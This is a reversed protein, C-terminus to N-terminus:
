ELSFDYRQSLQRNSGQKKLSNSGQDYAERIDSDFPKSAKSHKPVPGYYDYTPPPAIETHNSTLKRKDPKTIEVKDEDDSLENVIPVPEQPKVFNKYKMTSNEKKATSFYLGKAENIDGIMPPPPTKIRPRVESWTKSASPQPDLVRGTDDYSANSKKSEREKPPAFEKIRKDRQQEVYEEQTMERFKKKDEVGEKGIDWERVYAERQKQREKEQEEKRKTEEEKAKADAENKQQTLFELLCKTFDKQQDEPDEPPLGERMRRRAKSAALRAAVLEERKRRQEAAVEQAKLTEERVRQLESMQQRREAEETSFSFYGVGHIRAEDFLLDQYHVDKDKSLLEQEKKEWKERLSQLYDNTKQVLLPKEVPPTESVQADQPVDREKNVIRLLEKDKEQYLDLDSKLCKRTRGLCDTFETWESQDEDTEEYVPSPPRPPSAEHKVSEQRKKTNFDVLFRSALQSSGVGDALHEYLEAKKVLASKSKRCAELEETDIEKLKDRFCPKEIDKECKEPPKSPAPKFNEVKHQPLRKKENVEEQKKLLEAKLSFLTSKNFLIKKNQENM